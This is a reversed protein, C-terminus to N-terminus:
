MWVKHIRAAFARALRRMHASECSCENSSLRFLVLLERSEDNLSARKAFQIGLRQDSVYDVDM